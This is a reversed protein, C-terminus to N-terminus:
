RSARVNHISGDVTITIMADCTGSGYDILIEKGSNVEVFKKIGSVAMPCGRKYVLEKEIYMKYHVGNRNIGEAAVTADACQS